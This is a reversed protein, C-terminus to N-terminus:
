ESECILNGVSVKINKIGQYKPMSVDVDTHKGAPVGYVKGNYLTKNQYNSSWVNGNEDIHSDIEATITVQLELLPTYSQNSIRFYGRGESPGKYFDVCVYDYEGPLKCNGSADQAYSFASVFMIALLALIIKKMKFQRWNYGM